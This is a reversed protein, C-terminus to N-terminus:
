YEFKWMYRRYSMPHMRVDALASIFQKSLPHLLLGNYYEAVENPLTLIGYEEADMIYHHGAFTNLFREAREDLSRTRGTSKLLLIALQHDTTEFPGHFYEGSHTPVCHVTQMEQFFCFSDSYVSEWTVGSGLVNWVLDDRYRLAFEVANRKAKEYAAAYVSPLKEFAEIAESYFQYNDYEKLLWFAIKLATGQSNCHVLEPQSYWEDKHHYTLYYDANQATKSDSYGTLGLTVAGHQRAIKLAEVTEATAKTSTCIVLTNEGVIKPTAANFESSNYGETRISQSEAKLLYRAPYSSAYSGGCAIFIVNKLGGSRKAFCNKIQSMVDDIENMGLIM